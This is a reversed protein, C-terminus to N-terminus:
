PPEGPPHTPPLADIWRKVLALGQPDVLTTGLPPMRSVADTSALRLALVSHAADGPVLLHEAGARRYRLPTGQLQAVFADAQRAPRASQALVLDLPLRPEAGDRNHCHGCNGHLYGLAAREDPTRAPIRPPSRLLSRDLGSLLQLRELAALDLDGDGPPMANAAHPDRDPSLQLASAGLVPVPAAEHCARCDARALIRYRGKPAGPVPLAAIGGEPALEADSGDAKWVYTAFRWQGDALREVLRTEVRRGMSFEKWLRTGPPFQWADTRAADIRTGPPLRLWRRKLSGDSWLPYQPAFGHVGAAMRRAPLDAYLGTQSLWQPLPAAAPASGPAAARVWAAAVVLTALLLGTGVRHSRTVGRDM